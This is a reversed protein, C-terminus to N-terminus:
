ILEDSLGKLTSIFMLFVLPERSTVQLVHAYIDEFHSIAQDLLSTDVVKKKHKIMVVFVSSLARSIAALEESCVSFITHDTVRHRLQSCDQLADYINELKNNNRLTRLVAQKREHLRREYLYINEPYDSQLLCAFIEESFLCMNELTITFRTKIKLQKVCGLLVFLSLQACVIITIPISLALLVLLNLIFFGAYCRHYRQGLYVFASTVLMAYFAILINM